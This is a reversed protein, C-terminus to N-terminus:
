IDPQQHHVVIRVDAAQKACQKRAVAEGIDGVDARRVLRQHRRVLGVDHQQVMMRGDDGPSTIIV